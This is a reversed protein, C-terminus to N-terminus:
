VSHRRSLIHTAAARHWAELHEFRPQDLLAASDILDFVVREFARVTETGGDNELMILVNDVDTWHCSGIRASSVVVLAAITVARPAYCIVREATKAAWRDVAQSSRPDILTQYQAFMFCQAMFRLHEAALRYGGFESAAYEDAFAGDLGPEFDGFM